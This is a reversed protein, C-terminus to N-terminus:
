GHRGSNICLYQASHKETCPVESKGIHM